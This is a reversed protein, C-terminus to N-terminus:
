FSPFLVFYLFYLDTSNPTTVLAETGLLLGLSTSSMLLDAIFTSAPVRCDMMAM